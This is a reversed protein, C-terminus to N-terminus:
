SHERRCEKEVSVLDISQRRSLVFVMGNLQFRHTSRRTRKLAALRFDLEEDPMNMVLLMPVELYEIPTAIVGAAQMDKFLIMRADVQSRIESPINM